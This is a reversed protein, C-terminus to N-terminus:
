VVGITNMPLKNRTHRHAYIHESAQVLLYLFFGALGEGGSNQVIREAAHLDSVIGQPSRQHPSCLRGEVGSKETPLHGVKGM